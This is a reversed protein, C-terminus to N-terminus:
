SPFFAIPLLTMAMFIRLRAAGSTRSRQRSRQWSRQRTGLCARRFGGSRGFAKTDNLNRQDPPSERISLNPPRAAIRAVIKAVFDGGLRRCWVSRIWVNGIAGSLWRKPKASASITPSGVHGSHPQYRDHRVHRRFPLFTGHTSPETNDLSNQVNDRQQDSSGHTRGTSAASNM